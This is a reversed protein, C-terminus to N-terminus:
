FSVKDLNKTFGRFFYELRLNECTWSLLDCIAEDIFDEHIQM